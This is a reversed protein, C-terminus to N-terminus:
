LGIYTGLVWGYLPSSILYWSRNEQDNYSVTGTFNVVIGSSLTGAQHYDMGPGSRVIANGTITKSSGGTAKEMDDLGLPTMNDM